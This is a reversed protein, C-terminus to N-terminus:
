TSIIRKLGIWLFVLFLLTVAGILIEQLTKSSVYDSAVSWVGYGGHFLASFLLLLYVGKVSLSQIGNTMHSAGANVAPHIHIFLVYAPIMVLLFAGSVRQLKWFVSHGTNWIRAGAACATVMAGAGMLVWYFFPSVRQEGMLMFLALLSVFLWLLGFVWRLMNEDDRRGWCEYQMLRAGNFAHFIVPISSVWQIFPILFFRGSEPTCGFRYIHFLVMLVALIGTIRHCWSVVFSWGRTGAYFSVAPLRRLSSMLSDEFQKRLVKM